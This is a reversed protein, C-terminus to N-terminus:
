QGKEKFSPTRTLVSGISIGLILTILDRNEGYLYLNFSIIIIITTVIWAMFDFALNYGLISNPKGKELLINEKTWQFYLYISLLFGVVYVVSVGLQNEM